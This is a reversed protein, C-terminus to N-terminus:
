LMVKLMKARLRNFLTFRAGGTPTRFEGRNPREFARAPRANPEAEALRLM